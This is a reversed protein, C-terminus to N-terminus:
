ITPYFLNLKGAAHEKFLGTHYVWIVDVSSTFRWVSCPSRFKGAQVGTGKFATFLRLTVNIVGNPAPLVASKLHPKSRNM